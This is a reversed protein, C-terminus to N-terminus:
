GHRGSGEFRQGQPGTEVTVIGLDGRQKCRISHTIGFRQAVDPLVMRPQGTPGVGIVTVGDCRRVDPPGIDAEIVGATDHRAPM